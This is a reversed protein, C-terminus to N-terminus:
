YYRIITKGDSAIVFTLTERDMGGFGNRARFSTTVQYTGDSNKDVLSWSISEYSDPDRLYVNKLYDEVCPVSHDWQSQNVEIGFDSGYSKSKSHKSIAMIAFIAIAFVVIIIAFKPRNSINQKVSAKAM